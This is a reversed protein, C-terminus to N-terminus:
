LEIYKFTITGDTSDSGLSSINVELKTKSQKIDTFGYKWIDSMQGHSLGITKEKHFVSIYMYNEYDVVDFTSGFDFHNTPGYAVYDLTQSGGNPYQKLVTIEYKGTKLKAFPSNYKNKSCANFNWICFLAILSFSLWNLFTKMEAKM